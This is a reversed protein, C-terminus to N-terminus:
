QEFQAHIRAEFWRELHDDTIHADRFDIWDDFARLWLRQRFPISQVVSDIHATDQGQARLDDAVQQNLAISELWKEKSNRSRMVAYDIVSRAFLITSTRAVISFRCQKSFWERLKVLLGDGDLDPFDNEEGPIFNIIHYAIDEQVEQSQVSIWAILLNFPNTDDLNTAFTNM